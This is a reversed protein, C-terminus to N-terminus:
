QAIEMLTIVSIANGSTAGTENVRLSGGSASDYVCVQMKYTIENTTAPDDLLQMTQSGRCNTSTAGGVGIGVVYNGVGNNMTPDFIVETGRLLRYAVLAASTTSRLAIIQFNFNILIKSTASTPTIALFMDTADVFSESTTSTETTVEKSVVQLVANRTVGDVSQWKNFKAISM